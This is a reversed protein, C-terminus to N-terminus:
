GLLWCYLGIVVVGILNLVLGERAMRPVTLFGTGFVVANPATAVPLMFACSASLAAPLMLLKPDIGNAVAVAGLIPLMLITSATNSTVETLFTMLLCIVVIMGLVPLTGVGSLVGVARESLGSVRIGEALCIGGSFLLLMGWPIKQASEWDLLRGNEGERGSGDPLVFLLLVGVFAVSADNAGPLDCWKSWGGFPESRTIWALATLGFVVLTRWEAARWPGSRPVQVREENSLGRSLWLWMLPIMTVVLPVGVKMWGTFTMVQGTHKEFQEVFVLNPPTGIPSGMGGVSSAYAIGMMLPAALTSVSADERRAGELVALTIPLLMLTTATNSIWMSLAAAALMFGLMLSKAGGGGSARVMGLALRRHVGSKEMAKSLLFGGLLLLVLPHGYSQAVVTKAPLVGFLPLLAIPVLSAAPIPVAELMWWLATLIAVGLTIAAERSMGSHFALAGALLGLLPAFWRAANQLRIM